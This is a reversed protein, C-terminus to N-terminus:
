SPMTSRGCPAERGPDGEPAATDPRSRRRRWLLAAGSALALGSAVFWGTPGAALAATGSALPLACCAACAAGMGLVTKWTNM